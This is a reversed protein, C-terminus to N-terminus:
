LLEFGDELLVPAPLPALPPISAAARLTAHGMSLPTSSTSTMGYGFAVPNRIPADFEAISIPIKPLRSNKGGTAPRNCDEETMVVRGGTPIGDDEQVERPPIYAERPNDIFSRVLDQVNELDDFIFRGQHGVFSSGVPTPGAPTSRTFSSQLVSNVERLPVTLDVMELPTQTRRAVDTETWRTVETDTLRDVDTEVFRGVDGNGVLMPDQLRRTEEQDVEAKGDLRKGTAVRILTVVTPVDALGWQELIMHVISLIVRLLTVVAQVEVAVIVVSQIEKPDRHKVGITNAVLIVAICLSSLIALLNALFSRFPRAAILILAVLIQASALTAYQIECGDLTTPRFAAGVVMLSPSWLPLTSWGCGAFRLGTFMSGYATAIKKPLWRGFPLLLWALTKFKGEQFQYTHFEASVFRRVVLAAGLPISIAFAITIIAFLIPPAESKSTLLRLSCTGLGQYTLCCVTFTFSPFRAVMRSTQWSARQCIRFSLIVVMQAVVVIGILIFNGAVMGEMTDSLMLPSLLRPNRMAQRDGPTSCSMLGLVALTQADLAAGAGLASSVAATATAVTAANQAAATQPNSIAHLMFGGITQSSPPPCFAFADATLSVTVVEDEEVDLMPLRHLAFFFTTHGTRMLIVNGAVDISSFGNPSLRSSPDGTSSQVSLTYWATPLPEDAPYPKLGWSAIETTNFPLNYAATRLYTETALPLPNVSPLPRPRCPPQNPAM